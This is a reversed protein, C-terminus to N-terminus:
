LKRIDIIEFDFSNKELIMGETLNDILWGNLELSTQFPAERPLLYIREETWQVKVEFNEPIKGYCNQCLYLGQSEITAPSRCEPSMCEQGMPIAKM